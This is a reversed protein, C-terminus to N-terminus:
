ASAPGIRKHNVDFGERRLMIHIRPCGFRPREVSLERMRQRFGEPERRVSRYNWV